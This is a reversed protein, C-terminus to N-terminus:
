GVMRQGAGWYKEKVKRRLVKGVVSTPLAKVFEVSKPAKYNGIRSKVHAILEEATATKGERLIVEAHVAEGWDAHPVGVVASNMVAPHSALAGEVEIAYVNFGGSVIMDKLRDVIYLYGDDDLYGLDGSRWAGDEFESATAEPNQHYGAIIARTRIRIEGVTGNPVIKGEDDTIFVEVNPTIRGASSLRGVKAPDKSHQDKDLISVLIPAETAAYAQAFIPGFCDLLDGLKTPSMPAAGYLLTRLTGLNRPNARQLELLRYLITPVLFTHTIGEREVTSLLAEMDLANMTFNTGGACFTPYSFIQTGHSLPAVHLFRMEDNFELRPNLFASEAAAVWNDISYVACKGKGTTGGTFRRLTVHDRSPLVIDPDEPSAKDVLHWFSALHPHEAKQNETVDGCVVVKIAMSNFMAAHSDVLSAGIIAVKPKLFDAQWRHEDVSDRFNTMIATGAQKFITPFHILSLDDNDLILLFDDGKSIGLDSRLMNAIQNTVEHFQRYSYRRKKEINVLAPKDGYREALQRFARSFNIKM